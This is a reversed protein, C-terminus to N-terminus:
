AQASSVFVSFTDRDSFDSKAATIKPCPQMDKTPNQSLDLDIRDPRELLRDYISPYLRDFEAYQKLIWDSVGRFSQAELQSM